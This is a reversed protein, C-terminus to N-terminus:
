DNTKIATIWVPKNERTKIKKYNLLGKIVNTAQCIDTIFDM